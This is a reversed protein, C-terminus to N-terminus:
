GQANFPVDLGSNCVQMARIFLGSIEGGSWDPADYLEKAQEYTMKPENSVAAILAPAFTDVNYAAGESKQKPTPPHAEVLNDYETSPIARFKVRLVLDKGDEGVTTVDFTMVRRPKARLAAFTAVQAGNVPAEAAVKELTDQPVTEPHEKVSNSM